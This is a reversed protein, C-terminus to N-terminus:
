TPYINQALCIKGSYIRAFLSNTGKYEQSLKPLRFSWYFWINKYKRDLNNITHIWILALNIWIDFKHFHKSFFNITYLPFSFVSNQFRYAHSFLVVVIFRFIYFVYILPLCNVLVKMNINVIESSLNLKILWLINMSLLIAFHQTNLISRFGVKM